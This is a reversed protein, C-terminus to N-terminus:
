GWLQENKIIEEIILKEGAIKEVIFCAFGDDVVEHTSNSWVAQETKM